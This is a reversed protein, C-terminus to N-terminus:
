AKPLNLYDMEYLVFKKLRQPLRLKDVHTSATVRRIAMRCLHQLSAVKMPALWLSVSGNRTGVALAAGDPSYSCCLANSVIAVQEPFSSDFLDWFRVYSDDSVTAIHRGDRSFSLGRVFSGNAGGAYIPSPPPFMHGLEMLKQGLSPDWIIVRTDYSATALLAGDPSFDCSCVDHHHGELKRLKGLNVMDWVLVSRSDGVSVLMSTDPSWVCAYIWKSEVKLTKYMNGDDDLDWLKLTGDRSASVLRMSGDPAFKLDRIVDRHDSLEYQLKGTEIDWIRIRGNDLGAALLTGKAVNYRRWHLNISHPKTDSLPSGFAVSWVLDGADLTVPKHHLVHGEWDTDDPAAIKHKHRNWPILKVMRNGCSWAFYTGDSAWACSWTEFGAKHIQPNRLPTLQDILSAHELEDENVYDPFPSGPGM